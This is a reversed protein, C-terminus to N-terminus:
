ESRGFIRAAAQQHLDPFDRRENFMQVMERGRQLQEESMEAEMIPTMEREFHSYVGNFSFDSKYGKALVHQMLVTCEYGIDDGRNLRQFLWMIVDIIQIGASEMANSIVFKSGSLKRLRHKPVGPWEIPRPDANSLIEHWYALTREFQSQRDHTITKVARGWRDSQLEIGDMLNLFAVVNPLHGYRSRKTDSHVSIGCPNEAAWSFAAHTIERSRADPLGDLRPLTARCADAFLQSALNDSRCMLSEWFRRALNEDFVYQALKFLMLLRLHKFNYVHWPVSPNEYSDFVTDVVKTMALYKKEVRSVFIRADCGKIVSLLDPAVKNLRAVGLEAAHLEEVGLSAAIRGVARRQLVDFNTKTILAATVFFPQNDDFINEGTNGTEDVYVYM